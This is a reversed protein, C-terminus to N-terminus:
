KDSETTLNVCELFAKAKEKPSLEVFYTKSDLCTKLSRICLKEGIYGPNVICYQKVFDNLSLDKDNFLDAAYGNFCFLSLFVLSKM